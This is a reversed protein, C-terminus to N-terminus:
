LGYDSAKRKKAERKKHDNLAAMYMQYAVRINPYQKNKFESKEDGDQYVVLYPVPELFLTWGSPVEEIKNKRRRRLLRFYVRLKRRAEQEHETPVYAKKVKPLFKLLSEQPRKM